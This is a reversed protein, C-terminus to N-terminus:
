TFRIASIPSYVHFRFVFILHCGNNRVEEAVNTGCVYNPEITRYVSEFMRVFVAKTPTKMMTESILLTSHENLFQHLKAQMDAQYDRDGVPRTDKFGVGGTRGFTSAKRSSFKNKNM